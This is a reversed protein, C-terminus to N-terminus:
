PLDELAPSPIIAGGLVKTALGALCIGVPGTVGPEVAGYMAFPAGGTAGPAFGAPGLSGVGEPPPGTLLVPVAFEGLSEPATGATGACAWGFGGGTMAAAGSFRLWKAEASALSIKARWVPGPLGAVAVGGPEAGCEASERSAM